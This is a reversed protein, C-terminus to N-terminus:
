GSEKEGQSDVSCSTFEPDFNTIDIDSSLKPVFPAKIKKKLM